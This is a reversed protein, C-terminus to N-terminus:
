HRAGRCGLTGTGHRVLLDPEPGDTRARVGGGPGANTGGPRSRHHGGCGRAMVHVRCVPGAVARQPATGRRVARRRCRHCRRGGRSGESLQARVGDASTALGQVAVGYRVTDPLLASTLVDTLTARRVFVLPEGLARLMRDPDPRRLWTGDRWRVAGGNVRGGARRVDDGMGIEDLAAFANPWITIGAGSSADTREELVTVHLGRRQLAAATALGAVGAGVVLIHKAM